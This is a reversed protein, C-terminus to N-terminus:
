SPEILGHASSRSKRKGEGDDKNIELKLGKFVAEM